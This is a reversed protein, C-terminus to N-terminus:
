YRDASIVERGAITGLARWTSLDITEKILRVSGDGLLINVGGPHWSRSNVAAFTPGGNTERQGNIDLDFQGDLSRVEFNPPWSTTVGSQHVHGDAWETHSSTRLRGCRGDYEPVLEYPDGIGPYVATPDNVNTLEGCDRYYAQYTKVEAAIISQSLGDKFEAISRSRNVGFAGRNKTSGFGGWIYWDGMSFGYNTIGAEGFSHQSVQDNPESPCLFVSIMQRTITVNDPHSYSETFNVADYMPGQELYPLIRGHVSWGGFWTVENGRGLMSLAQPYVGLSSEYNALGLGLQKLNNSCHARRAAERASQVAPLLLAILVGIIAIVVLLEILTFGESRGREQKM